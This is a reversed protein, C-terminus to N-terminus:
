SVLVCFLLVFLVACSGLLIPLGSLQPETDSATVAVSSSGLESSVSRFSRVNEGIAFVKIPHFTYHKVYM